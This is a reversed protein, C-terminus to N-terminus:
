QCLLETGRVKIGGSFGAKLSGVRRRGVFDDFYIFLCAKRFNGTGARCGDGYLNGFGTFVTRDDILDLYADAEVCHLYMLILGKLFDQPCFSYLSYIVAVM